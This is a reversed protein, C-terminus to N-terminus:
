LCPVTAAASPWTPTAAAGSPWTVTPGGAVAFLDLGQGASAPWEPPSTADGSPWAVAVRACSTARAASDHAGSAIVVAAGAAGLALAAMTLSRTRRTRAVKRDARTLIPSAPAITLSTM